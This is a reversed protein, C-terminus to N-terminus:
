NSVSLDQLEQDKYDFLKQFLQLYLQVLMKWVWKLWQKELKKCERLVVWGRLFLVEADAEAM